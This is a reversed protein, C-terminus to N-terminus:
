LHTERLRNTEGASLVILQWPQSNCWSPVKQATAVIREVLTREVPQDLFGCCSHRQDLLTDFASFYEDELRNLSPFNVSSPMAIM